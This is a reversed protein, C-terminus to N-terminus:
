AGGESRSFRAALVVIEVYIHFTALALYTTRTWAPDAVAAGIVVFTSGAIAALAVPHPRPTRQSTPIWRLWIAYHVSQLFTFGLLLARGAGRPIAGFMTVAARDISLWPSADGGTAAATVPGVLAAVLVFGVVAGGLARAERRSPRAVVLWAIVTILNHALAALVVFALPMAVIMVSTFMAIGLARRRCTPDLVLTGLLWAAVVAVEARTVDIGFGLSMAKLGVLTASAVIALVLQRRPLPLVLYRLDSAVHPVGLVIPMWVLLLAPAVLTLACLVALGVFRVTIASRAPVAVFNREAVAITAM